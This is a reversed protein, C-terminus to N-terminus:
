GPKQSLGDAKRSLKKGECVAREEARRKVLGPLVRRRPGYKFAEIRECAEEYKEANILDILNPPSGPKAKRCFAALPAAKVFRLGEVEQAEGEDAALGALPFEM